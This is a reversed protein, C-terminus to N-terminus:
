KLEKGNRLGEPIRVYMWVAFLFIGMPPMQPERFIGACIWTAGCAIGWGLSMASWGRYRLFGVIQLVVFIIGGTLYVTADLPTVTM